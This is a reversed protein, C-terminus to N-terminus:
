RTRCTLDDIEKFIDKYRTFHKTLCLYPDTSKNKSFSTEFYTALTIAMYLICINIIPCFSLTFSQNRNCWTSIQVKEVVEFPIVNSQCQHSQFCFVAKLDSRHYGTAQLTIKSILRWEGVALPLWKVWLNYKLLKQCKQGTLDSYLLVGDLIPAGTTPKKTSIFCVLRAFLIM